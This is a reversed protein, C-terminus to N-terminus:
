TSSWLFLVGMQGLLVLNGPPEMGKDFLRGYRSTLEMLAQKFRDIAAVSEGPTFPGPRGLEDRVVSIFSSLLFM